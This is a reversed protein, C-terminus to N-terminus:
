DVPFYKLIITLAENLRSLQAESYYTDQHFVQECIGAKIRQICKKGDPLISIEVMRRDNTSHHRNVYQLACLKDIIPTINPMAIGTHRSLQTVSMSEGDSLELLIQAHPLQIDADQTIDRSKLIRNRLIPYLHFISNIIQDEVTSGKFNMYM